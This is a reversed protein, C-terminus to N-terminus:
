ETFTSGDWVGLPKDEEAADASVTKYSLIRYRGNVTPMSTFVASVSISLRDNIDETFEVTFGEMGRRLTLGDMDACLQEFDSEFFGQHATLAAKDLLMLKEQVRSDAAYYEKTAAVSKENLIDNAGAAHYSMVALVALSIVAFIMILTVYGVGMGGSAAKRKDM